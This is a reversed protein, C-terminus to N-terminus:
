CEVLKYGKGHVSLIQMSCKTEELLKRLHYIYVSLSRSAFYNDQGWLSQLIRSKAVMQNKNRCLMLLLDSERSSLHHDALTQHVSDFHVGSLEFEVGTCEEVVDYHEVMFKELGESATTAADVTYNQCRLYEALKNASEVNEDVILVYGNKM